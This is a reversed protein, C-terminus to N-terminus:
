ARAGTTSGSATLAREYWAFTRELGDDLSRRAQWGLEDRIASSDLIRSAADAPAPEMGRVDPDVDRRAVAILRRVVDLVRHGTGSGANWARGHNARDSLSAAVRMYADVADEVYVLDRVPTGDSRIVPREGRALARASDPVLRSWNRDGGGYVNALRLVGVALGHTDAFSRAILDACAKSADYPASALLPGSEDLPGGSGAGYAHVSSAVVVREVGGALCADLLTYTGRVNVDVTDHPSRDAVGVIPQAALHFVTGVRHRAILDGLAARDLVDAHAVTCADAVGETWFRARPDRRRVVAVVRAGEGALRQALWAGVFGQGGTVLM